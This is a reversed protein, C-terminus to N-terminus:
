GQRGQGRRSRKKRVEKVATNVFALVDEETMDDFKGGTASRLQDVAQGFAELGKPTPKKSVLEKARIIVGGKKIEFDIIDGEKLNLRERVEKPLTVQGSRLVKAWPMKTKVGKTSM